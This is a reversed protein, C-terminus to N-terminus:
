LDMLMSVMGTTFVFRVLGNGYHSSLSLVLYLVCRPFCSRLESSLNLGPIISMETNTVMLGIHELGFVLSTSVLFM